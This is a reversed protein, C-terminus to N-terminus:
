DNASELLDVEILGAGEPDYPETSFAVLLTPVRGENRVAHAVGPPIIFRWLAGEPVRADHSGDEDRYRVLAPGQVALTETGKQHLHNGRVAGPRNVVVHANKQAGLTGEGLPEFAAGRDDTWLRLEEITVM